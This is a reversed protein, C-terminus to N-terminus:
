QEEQGKREYQARQQEFCTPVPVDWWSAAPSGTLPYTRELKVEAVTPIGGIHPVGEQILTQRAVQRGALRM